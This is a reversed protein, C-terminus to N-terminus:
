HVHHLAVHMVTPSTAMARRWGHQMGPNSDRSCCRRKLQSTFLVFLCFLGYPPLGSRTTIPPSEHVSPQPNSDWCRICSPSKKVYIQQLFQLTQKFLRFYVRFSAQITWEFVFSAMPEISSM